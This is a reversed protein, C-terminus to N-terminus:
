HRQYHRYCHGRDLLLLLFLHVNRHYRPRSDQLFQWTLNQHLFLLFLHEFFNEFMRAIDPDQIEFRPPIAAPCGPPDACRQMTNRKSCQLAICNCICYLVIGANYMMTSSTCPSKPTYIAGMQPECYM